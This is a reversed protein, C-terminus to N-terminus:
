DLWWVPVAQQKHRERNRRGLSPFWGNNPNNNAIVNDSKSGFPVISMLRQTFSEFFSLGQPTGPVPAVSQSADIPTGIIQPATQMTSGVPMGVPTGVQNGVTQAARPFISYQARADTVGFALAIVGGIFLRQM